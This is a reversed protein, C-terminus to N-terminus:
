FGALASIQFSIEADNSGMSFGQSWLMPYWVWDCAQFSVMLLHLTSRIPASVDSTFFFCSHFGIASISHFSFVSLYPLCFPSIHHVGVHATARSDQALGLLTSVRRTLFYPSIPCWRATPGLIYLLFSM